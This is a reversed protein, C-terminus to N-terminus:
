NSATRASRSSRMLSWPACCHSCRKTSANTWRTCNCSPSDELAIEQDLQDVLSKVMAQNAASTTVVIRRLKPDSSIDARPVLQKVLTALAAPDFHKPQYVVVQKGGEDVDAGLKQVM